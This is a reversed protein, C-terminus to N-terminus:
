ARTMGQAEGTCPSKRCSARLCMNTKRGSAALSMAPASSTELLAPSSSTLPRPPFTLRHSSTPFTLLSFWLQTPSGGVRPELESKGALM